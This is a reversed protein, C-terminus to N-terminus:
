AFTLICSLLTSWHHADWPPTAHMHARHTYCHLQKESPRQLFHPKTNHMFHEAQLYSFCCCGTVLVTSASCRVSHFACWSDRIMANLDDCMLQIATELRDLYSDHKNIALIAAKLRKLDKYRVNQLLQPKETYEPLSIAFCQDFVPPTM